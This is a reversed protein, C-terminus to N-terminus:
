DPEREQRGRRGTPGQGAGRAVAVGPPGPDRGVRGVPSASGTEAGPRVLWTLVTDGYAHQAESCLGAIPPLSHRKASEVVVLGHAGLLASASLATLVESALESAYPPDVFVLDYAPETALRRIAGRADARVVSARTAAGLETLNRRVIALSRESRDVFTVHEAGRSLAELGVAGTGAFLDLVRAGSVDGLRAFLSERVRDSTPRVGKPAPALRRGRHEGGIIRVESGGGRLAHAVERRNAEATQTCCVAPRM